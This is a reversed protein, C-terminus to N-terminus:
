NFQSCKTVIIHCFSPISDCKNCWNEWKMCIVLFASSKKGKASIEPWRRSFSKIDQTLFTSHWAWCMKFAGTTEMYCCLCNLIRFVQPIWASLKSKHVVDYLTYNKGSYFCVNVYVMAIVVFTSKPHLPHYFYVTLETRNLNITFTLCDSHSPEASSHARDVDSITTEKESQM